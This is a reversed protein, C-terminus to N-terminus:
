MKLRVEFVTKNDNSSVLVEGDHREVISKVIALGLGGGNHSRAKDVCYFKDFIYPLDSKPITIGYNTIRVCADAAEKKIEIDIYKGDSGYKVANNILNEFVRAILVSDAYVYIKEEPFNMRCSIEKEQLLPMIGLVVQRILEAVDIKIKKLKFDINSINTYEFLQDVLQKLELCKSYAIDSYQLMSEEDGNKKYNNILQLYGLVSTLPTRLDHSINSIMDDKEKIWRQKEENLRKLEKSMQNVSKSLYGLEDTREEVIQVELNGKSIEEVMTTIKKLHQIGKKTIILFFVSMLFIFLIIVLLFLILLHTDMWHYLIEPNNYFGISIIIFLIIICNGALLASLLYSLILKIRITNFKIKM